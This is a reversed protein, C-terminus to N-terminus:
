RAALTSPRGPGARRPGRWWPPRTCRRGRGLPLSVCLDGGQQGLRFRGGVLTHRSRTKGTSTTYTESHWRLRVECGIQHLAENVKRPDVKIALEDERDVDMYFTLAFMDTGPPVPMSLSTAWYEDWWATLAKTAEAADYGDIDASAALQAQLNDLEDRMASIRADLSKRTRADKSELMNEEARAIKAALEDRDHMLRERQERNPSLFDNVLQDPPATLMAQLNKIEQGLTRLVFPLIRDQRVTVNGCATPGRMTNGTCRYVVADTKNRGKGRQPMACMPSGCHDCVLIGTLPYGARKRRHRDKSVVDLRQQAKDFLVPDIIADYTGQKEFVKNGNDLGQVKREDLESRSVVEGKGDIRFFEGQPLVNFTFDGRYAKRRILRAVTSTYWKTGRPGVVGRENLQGAIWFLSRLQNVFQDFIWQVVEVEKPDGLKLEGTPKEKDPKGPETVLVYVNEFGYPAGGGTRIGDKAKDRRTSAIRRSLRTCHEHSANAFMAIQMAAMVEGHAIKISGQNQAHIYRVGLERLQQVDHQTQMSDARSFRDMDDVLIAQVDRRERIDNVMRFYDPRAAGRKWGPIGPDVYWRIIEYRAGPEVPKMESIRAKQDAISIEYGDETTSKRLYGVAPIIRDLIIPIPM